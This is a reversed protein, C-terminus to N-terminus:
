RRAVDGGATSPSPIWREMRTALLEHGNKRIKDWSNTRKFDCHKLFRLAPINNDTVTAYMKHVAPHKQQVFADLVSILRTGYGKRQLKAAIVFTAVTVIKFHPYGVFLDIVAVNNQSQADVALLLYRYVKTQLKPVEIDYCARALGKSPTHLLREHYHKNGDFIAQVQDIHQAEVRVLALDLHEFFPLSM